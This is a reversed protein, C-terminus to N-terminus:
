SPAAARKAAEYDMKYRIVDDSSIGLIGNRHTRFLSGQLPKTLYDSVMEKTPCYTIVVSGDKVKSTVYFYRIAIHRTRKTSSRKGNRALQITSTNDQKIVVRSGLLKINSTSPVKATQAECFLKVWIVFNMADDVGVLEAETSSKTNIKQKSSFSLAAGQGLSLVAGTHSKMDKHIAFSADVSWILNGSGDWGLVLPLSITERLYRIVRALKEYDEKDPNKVRTCLFAIAIQLDPRARKAAFLLRAVTRHFLDATEPDLQECEDNVKFLDNSAPTIASGDMDDPAEEIIDELYDYMTFKVKDKESYDITMGLYDHVAGQTEALPKQEGFVGNLDKMLEDLVAQDKHSAKLDDVHFQVTLQEGNVMKNFTCEDYPNQEFDWEELQSKLKEYFLIAGLLTGYIAKTLKGYIIKKGAKTVIVNKKYEPNIQCIMDVMVGQFKIYCDHDEPWEAQLFAGPIDCTIVKRNDIADMLCSAMLAYLSVTPSSSEEKTIYERQPRGDACGRAKIKGTRKRKLFMLYSLSTKRIESTIEHIELMKMVGRGILNEDLEAVTADWGSDGFLKLGKNFSYQPTSKTAEIKGYSTITNLVYQYAVHANASWHPGDLGSDLGHKKLKSTPEDSKSESSDAEDETDGSRSKSSKSDSDSGGSRSEDSSPNYADDNSESQAGESEEDSVENHANNNIDNADGGDQQQEVIPEMVIPEEQAADEFIEDGDDAGVFHDMQAEEAEFIEEPPYEEMPNEDAQLEEDISDDDDKYSEDSANSDEEGAHEDLDMITINGHMDSFVFNDVQNEKEGMRNVLDIITEPIPLVTVRNVSVREKTSLKFVEHGSGNDARGLYLADISREEEVDNSGGVHGQVYQGIEIDPCRFKKGTVIERPSLSEHVQGERPISNMLIVVRYVMEVIFRKPLKKFPMRLRVCRIREKVFRNTREVFDVHKRADCFHTPVQYPENELESQLCKFAGDATLSCVQFIGRLKYTRLMQGFADLYNTQTKKRICICQILGIHRSIGIMFMIGNVHFVDVGLHIQSYDECISDPLDRMEDEKPLKSKKSTTKGKMAHVNPGYIKNAIRIDRRSFPTPGIVGYELAKALDADSPFGLCNQLHRVRTARTCDLASFKSKEGEVTTLFLKPDDGDSVELSYLGNSQCAFRIYSGDDNYVYFANDIATDMVVRNNAAVMALSLLNAVGHEQYYIGEKPLPLHQLSDCLQGTKTARFSTGGCHIPIAREADQIEKLLDPNTFLCLSAGSDLVLANLPVNGRSVNPGGSRPKQPDLSPFIEDVSPLKDIATPPEDTTLGFLFYQREWFIRSHWCISDHWVNAGGRSCDHWIDYKQCIWDHWVDAAGRRCDHWIYKPCLWDHWVDTAGRRCDHWIDDTPSPQSPRSPHPKKYPKSQNKKVGARNLLRRRLFYLALHKGRSGRKGNNSASKSGNKNIYRESFPTKGRHSYPLTYHRANRIM